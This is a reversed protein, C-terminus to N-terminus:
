WVGFSTSSSSSSPSCSSVVRRGIVTLCERTNSRVQRVCGRASQQSHRSSSSASSTASSIAVTLRAIPDSCGSFYGRSVKYQSIYHSCVSIQFYLTYYDCKVDRFPRQERITIYEFDCIECRNTGSSGLWKEVCSRHLNGSLNTSNCRAWCTRIVQCQPSHISVWPALANAPLYSRKEVQAKTVFEAASPQIVSFLSFYEM